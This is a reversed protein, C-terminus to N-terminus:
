IMFIHGQWLKYKSMKITFIDYVREFISLIYYVSKKLFLEIYTKGLCPLLREPCWILVLSNFLNRGRERMVEWFTLSSSLFKDSVKASIAIPWLIPPNSVVLVHRGWQSIISSFFHFDYKGIKCKKRLTSIFVEYRAPQWLFYKTNQKSLYRCSVSLYLQLVLGPRRVKQNSQCYLLFSGTSHYDYDNFM